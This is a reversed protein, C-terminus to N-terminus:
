LRARLFDLLMRLRGRVPKLMRMGTSDYCGRGQKQQDHLIYQQLVLM